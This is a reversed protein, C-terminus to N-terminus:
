VNSAFAVAQVQQAMTVLAPFQKIATLTAVTDRRASTGDLCIVLPVVNIKQWDKTTPQHPLM